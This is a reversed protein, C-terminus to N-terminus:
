FDDQWCTTNQMQYYKIVTPIFVALTLFFVGALVLSFITISITSQERNNDSKIQEGRYYLIIIALWSLIIIVCGKIQLVIFCDLTATVPDTEQGDGLSNSSYVSASIGTSNSCVASLDFM